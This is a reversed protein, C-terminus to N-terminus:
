RLPTGPQPNGIVHYMLIPVVRDHSHVLRHTCRIRRDGSAGICLDRGAGGDLRDYPKQDRVRILDRGPGGRVVDRGAADVLIDDGPGGALLDNGAGGCIVDDRGTGLIRDDGRTGVLTCSGEFRRGAVPRNPSLFRLGGKAAQSASTPPRVAAGGLGLVLAALISGGTM